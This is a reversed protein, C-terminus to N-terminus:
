LDTPSNYPTSDKKTYQLSLLVTSASHNIMESESGTDYHSFSWSM